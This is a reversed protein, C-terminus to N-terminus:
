ADVVHSLSAKRACFRRSEYDTVSQLLLRHSTENRLNMKTV